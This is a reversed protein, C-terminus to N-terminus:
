REHIVKSSSKRWAYIGCGLLYVEPFDVNHRHSAGKVGTLIDVFFFVWWTDEV